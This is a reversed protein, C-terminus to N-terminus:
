RKETYQKIWVAFGKHQLRYVGRVGEKSIIIHRERLARIANTLTTSGGKFKKKIEGLTVWGDLEDAM